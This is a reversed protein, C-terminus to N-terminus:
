SERGKTWLVSIKGEDNILPMGYERVNKYLVYKM